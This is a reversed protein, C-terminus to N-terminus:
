RYKSKPAQREKPLAHAGRQSRGQPNLLALSSINQRSCRAGGQAFNQIHRM